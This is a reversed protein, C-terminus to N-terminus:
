EPLNKGNPGEDDNQMVGIRCNGIVVRLVLSGYTIFQFSGCHPKTASTKRQILNDGHSIRESGPLHDGFEILVDDALVIGLFGHGHRNAVAPTPLL